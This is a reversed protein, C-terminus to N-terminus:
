RLPPATHKRVLELMRGVNIPKPLVEMVNGRRGASLQAARADASIVIIPVSALHAHEPLHSLFTLGDMIPMAIDLLILAPRAGLAAVSELAHM